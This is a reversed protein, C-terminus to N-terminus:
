KRPQCLIYCFLGEYSSAQTSVPRWVPNIAKLKKGQKGASQKDKGGGMKVKHNLVHYAGYGQGVAM